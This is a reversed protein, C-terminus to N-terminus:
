FFINALKGTAARGRAGDETRERGRERRRERGVPSRRVVVCCCEGFSLVVVYVRCCSLKCCIVCIQTFCELM